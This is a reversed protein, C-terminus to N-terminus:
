CGQNGYEVEHWSVTGQGQGMFAGMAILGTLHVAVDNYRIPSQESPPKLLSTRTTKVNKKRSRIKQETERVRSMEDENLRGGYFSRNERRM